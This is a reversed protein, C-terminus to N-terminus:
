TSASSPTSPLTAFIRDSGDDTLALLNHRALLRMADAYDGRGASDLRRSTSDFCNSAIIQALLDLMVSHESLAELIDNDTTPDSM